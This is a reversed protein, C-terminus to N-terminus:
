RLPGRPCGPDVGTFPPLEAQDALPGIQRAHELLYDIDAYVALRDARLEAASLREAQDLADRAMGRYICRMDEPGNTQEMQLSLGMAQRSMDSLGGVLPDDPGLPPATQAPNQQAIVTRAAVIAALREATGAFDAGPEALLTSLATIAVSVLTM